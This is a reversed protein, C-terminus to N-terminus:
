RVEYNNDKFLKYYEEIMENVEEDTLTKDSSQFVLRFAFSTKEIGDIEKTFTDFLDVRIVLTNHVKNLITNIDQWTTNGPVWIAIDRSIFPYPSIAKYSVTPLSAFTPTEYTDPESLTDILTDFDLEMVMSKMSVDYKIGSYNNFGWLIPEEYKIKELGLNRYISQHLSGLESALIKSEKESSCSYGFAIHKREKDKTFVNGIEFIKIVKQGLLPANYINKTLAEKIGDHLNTRLKEKDDALGKVIEIEGKDGFTYTMVESFGHSLFVERVKNEYHTQKPLLGTRSLKPLNPVLKDYGIIRGIEEALDEKIRIDLREEQVKVVYREEELDECIRGYGIIKRSTSFEEVTELVVKGHVKTAHLVKNNDLYLGVHDIGDPVFTGRLFEVSEYRIIGEDSNAFILDGFKLEDKNIKKSFVFKDISLSPMWVSKYLYSVLSSCSFFEPADYRMSSPNKYSKGILGPYVESIYKKPIIKDFSFDLKKLTEEIQTNSYSSGLIGNLEALSIGVYYSTDKNPYIDTVQSVTSSPFLEKILNVTMYLGEEVLINAIGNEFRKSADTKIGYKQSTRRILSPNFNASEIIISTTDDRIGSFKGGKIGALGLVKTDDAIVLTNEDLSLEKDDLTTLSESSKAFRARLAGDISRADYAHMPKNLAFQIYNTIDVINNISRQGIAELRDKLWKPSEEVKVKDIRVSMFRTCAKENDIAVVPSPAIANYVDISKETRIDKKFTLGFDACLERAMGVHGLADHARNPLVKIDFISDNPLDLVEEVEFARKNLIEEIENNTPLTESIYEQLWDKSFKM